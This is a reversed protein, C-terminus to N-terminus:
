RLRYLAFGTGNKISISNHQNAIVIGTGFTGATTGGGYLTHGNLDLTVNSTDILICRMDPGVKLDKVVIYSGPQSITYPSYAIDIQGVAGVSGTLIISLLLLSLFRKM